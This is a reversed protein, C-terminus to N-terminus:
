KGHAQHSFLNNYEIQVLIPPKKLFFNVYTANQTEKWEKWLMENWKWMIKMIELTCTKIKNANHALWQLYFHAPFFTEPQKQGALLRSDNASKIVQWRNGRYIFNAISRFILVDFHFYMTHWFNNLLVVAVAVVHCEIFCLIPLSLSIEVSITTPTHTHARM